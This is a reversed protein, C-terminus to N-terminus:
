TFRDEGTYGLPVPSTARDFLSTSPSYEFGGEAEGPEAPGGQFLPSLPM